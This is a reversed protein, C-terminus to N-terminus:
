GLKGLAWVAIPTVILCLGTVLLSVKTMLISNKVETRKDLDSIKQGLANHAAHNAEAFDSLDNHFRIITEDFKKHIDKVDARIDSRLARLEEAQTM